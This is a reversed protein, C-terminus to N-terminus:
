PSGDSGFPKAVSDDADSTRLLTRRKGQRYVVVLGVIGLLLCIGGAILSTTSNYVAGLVLAIVGLLLVTLCIKKQHQLVWAFKKFGFKALLGGGVIFVMVLGVLVSAYSGVVGSVADGTAEIVGAAADGTEEIVEALGGSEVEQEQRWEAKVKAGAETTFLKDIVTAMVKGVVITNRMELSVKFDGRVETNRMRLNVEQEFMYEQVIAKVDTYLSASQSLQTISSSLSGFAKSSDGLTGLQSDVTSAQEALSELEAKLETNIKDKAASQM